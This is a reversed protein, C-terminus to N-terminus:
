ACLLPKGEEYSVVRVESIEIWDIQYPWHEVNRKEPVLQCVDTIMSRDGRGIRAKYMYSQSIGNEVILLSQSGAAFPVFRFRIRNAAPNPMGPSYLPASKPGFAGPHDRIMTQVMELEVASLPEARDGEMRPSGKEDVSLVAQSGMELRLKLPTRMEAAASNAALIMAAGAMWWMVKHDLQRIM